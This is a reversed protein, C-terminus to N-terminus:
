YCCVAFEELTYMSCEGPDSSALDHLTEFCKFPSFDYLIHKIM